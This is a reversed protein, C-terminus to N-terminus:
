RLRLRLLHEHRFGSLYDANGQADTYVAVDGAGRVAGYTVVALNGTTPDSACDDAYIMNGLGSLSTIPSTGGHAYEYITTGYYYGAEIFVNGNTDSCIGETTAPPYSPNSVTFQGVLADGPYTYILVGGRTQNGLVYGQDVYLLDSGSHSATSQQAGSVPTSSIPGGNGGGCAALLVASVCAGVLHTLTKM